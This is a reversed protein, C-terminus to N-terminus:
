GVVVTFSCACLLEVTMGIGCWGGSDSSELVKAESDSFCECKMDTVSCFIKMVVRKRSEGGVCVIGGRKTVLYSELVLYIYISGSSNMSEGIKALKAWSLSDVFFTRV